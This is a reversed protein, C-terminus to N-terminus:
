NNNNNNSNNNNNKAEKDESQQKKDKKDLQSKSNNQEKNKQSNGPQKKEQKTKTENTPKKEPEKTPKKGKAKPQKKDESSIQEKLQKKNLADVSVGQSNAEVREEVTAKNMQVSEKKLNTTSNAVSTTILKELSLQHTEEIYITTIEIQSYENTNLKSQDVITSLLQPFTKGKWFSIERKLAIGDENLGRFQQVDGDEDIGLEFSPNFDVQVFASVTTQAPLLVSFFMLVIAVAAIIPAMVAPKVPFKTKYVAVYPRFSVEEGVSASSVLSIGKQFRGDPTLFISYSSKNEFVIGRQTNM